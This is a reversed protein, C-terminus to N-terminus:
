LRAQNLFPSHHQPQFNFKRVRPSSKGGDRSIFFNARTEKVAAGKSCLFIHLHLPLNCFCVVFVCWLDKFFRASVCESM